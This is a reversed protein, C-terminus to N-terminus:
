NLKSSLIKFIVDKNNYFFKEKLYNGQIWTSNKLFGYEYIKSYIIFLNKKGIKLLDERYFLNNFFVNFIIKFLKLLDENSFNKVLVLDLYLYIPQLFLFSVTVSDFDIIFNGKKSKIFNSKNPDEQVLGIKLGNLKSIFTKKNFLILELIIEKIEIFNLFNYYPMIYGIKKNVLDVKINKIYGFKKLLINTMYFDLLSIGHISNIWKLEKEINNDIKKIICRNNKYLTINNINNSTLIPEINKGINLFIDNESIKYFIDKDIYNFFFYYFLKLKNDSINITNKIYYSKILKEFFINIELYELNKSSFKFLIGKKNIDITYIITCGEIIDFVKLFVRNDSLNDKFLFKYINIYIVINSINIDILQYRGFLIKGKLKLLIDYM